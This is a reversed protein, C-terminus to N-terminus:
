NELGFWFSFKFSFARRDTMRNCQVCDIVVSDCVVLAFIWLFVSCFSFVLFLSLNYVKSSHIYFIISFSQTPVSSCVVCVCVCWMCSSEFKGATETTCHFFFRVLKPEWITIILRCFLMSCSWSRRKEGYVLMSYCFHVLFFPSSHMNREKKREVSIM